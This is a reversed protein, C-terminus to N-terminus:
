APVPRVPAQLRVAYPHWDGRWRHYEAARGACAPSGRERRRLAKVPRLHRELCARAPGDLHDLSLLDELAQYDQALVAQYGFVRIVASESLQFRGNLLNGLRPRIKRFLSVAQEIAGQQEAELLVSHHCATILASRVTRPVYMLALRSFTQDEWVAKWLGQQALLQVRLFALNDATCLHLQRMQALAVEAGNWNMAALSSNFHMMVEAYSSQQESRFVPQRQSLKSWQVLKGQIISRHKPPSQWAYYGAYVASAADRLTSTGAPTSSFGLFTHGELLEGYTPLVFRSIHALSRTATHRNAGALLWVDKEPGFIPLVATERALQSLIAALTDDKIEVALQGPDTQYPHNQLPQELLVTALTYTAPQEFRVIM